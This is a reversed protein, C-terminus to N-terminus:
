LAGAFAAFFAGLVAGLAAFVGAFFVADWGTAFVTFFGAAFGTFFFRYRFGAETTDDRSERNKIKLLKAAEHVIRKYAAGSRVSLSPYVTFAILLGNPYPLTLGYM